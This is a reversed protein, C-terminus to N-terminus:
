NLSFTSMSVSKELSPFLIRNKRLFSFVLCKLMVSLTMTPRHMTFSFCILRFRIYFKMSVLDYLM